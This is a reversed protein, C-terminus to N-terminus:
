AASCIARFSRADPGHTFRCGARRYFRLADLNDADVILYFESIASDRFYAKAAEFLERSVHRGTRSAYDRGRFRPLVALSLLEAAASAPAHFSRRRVAALARIIKEVRSPRLLISRMFHVALAFWHRRVGRIVFDYGFKTYAVFGAPTDGDYFLDCVVLGDEVLARYYFQRLFDAGLQVVPSAPLLTTHLRAVDEVQDSPDLRRLGPNM